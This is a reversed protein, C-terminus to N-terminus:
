HKEEAAELHGLMLAVIDNLTKRSFGGQSRRLHDVERRIEQDTYNPRQKKVMHVGPKDTTTPKPKVNATRKDAETASRPPAPPPRKPLKETKAHLKQVERAQSQRFTKQRKNLAAIEADRKRLTSELEACRTPDCGQKQTEADCTQGMARVARSQRRSSIVQSWDSKIRRQVQEQEVGDVSPKYCSNSPSSAHAHRSEGDGVVAHQRGTDNSGLSGAGDLVHSSGGCEDDEDDPDQYYFFTYLHEHLVRFGTRQDLFATLTGYVELILQAESPSLAELLDEEQSPGNEQLIERLKRVIGVVDSETLTKPQSKEGAIVEEEGKFRTGNKVVESSSADWERRHSPKTSDTSSEAECKTSHTTGPTILIEGKSCRKSVAVETANAVVNRRHEDEGAEEQIKLLGLLEQLSAQMNFPLSSPGSSTSGFSLKPKLKRRRRRKPAAVTSM